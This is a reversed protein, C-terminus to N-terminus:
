APSFESWHVNNPVSEEFGRLVLYDGEVISAVIYHSGPQLDALTTM